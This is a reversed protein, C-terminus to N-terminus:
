RDKEVGLRSLREKLAQSIKAQETLRRVSVSLTAADRRFREGVATLTASGMHMALCAIMARAEAAHRSRNRSRLQAETLDYEGCVRAVIDDLLPPKAPKAQTKGLAQEIFTDSGLVRTDATGRHFEERYGEQLGEQIFQAYRRQATGAQRALLGLVWDTTLWLLRERGLYARHGSWAYDAPDSVLGARVPNLHIYRVLALLYNDADVLVAQYRGQFLHGTRHQQRNIWLTYRFALNQIVTSLPLDAVQIALHLHNTMCCFAHVRHGFRAIGEQLLEYLHSHDQDGFFIAQGSNGRLMVHYVAGPFHIRPKRAM